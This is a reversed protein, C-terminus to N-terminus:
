RPRAGEEPAVGVSWNNKYLKEYIGKANPAAVNMVFPTRLFNAAAGPSDPRYIIHSITATVMTPQQRLALNITAIVIFNLNGPEEFYRGFTCPQPKPDRVADSTFTITHAGSKIYDIADKRLSDMTFWNATGGPAWSPPGGLANMCIMVNVAKVNKFVAEQREEQAKIAALDADRSNSISNQAHALQAPKAVFLALAVILLLTSRM